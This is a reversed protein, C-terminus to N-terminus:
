RNLFYKWKQFHNWNANFLEDKLYSLADQGSLEKGDDLLIYGRICGADSKYWPFIVHDDLFLQVNM